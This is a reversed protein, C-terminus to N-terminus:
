ANYETHIYQFFSNISQADMQDIRM